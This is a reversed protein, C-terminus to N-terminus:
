YADLAARVTARARHLLVRENGDSLGLTAAVAQTSWGALDRLVIVDHQRAPLARVAAGAVGLRERALLAAEPGPRLSPADEPLPLSRAERAHRTRARNVLISLLWTKLSSREEFRGIGELVALWTEQVVEEALAPSDVYRRAVRSMLGGYRAVLAEFAEEDGRRLAAVLRHEDM